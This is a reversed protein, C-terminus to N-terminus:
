NLFMDASDEQEQYEEIMRDEQRHLKRVNDSVLVLSKDAKEYNAKANDLQKGLKRFEERFSDVNQSVKTLGDLIMQAEENIKVKMEYNKILLILPFITTPSIPTISLSQLTKNLELDNVVENYMSDSPLFMLLVDVFGPKLYKKNIDSAMNKVQRLFAKHATSKQELPADLYTQYATMPAKSDIGIRKVEDNFGDEDGLTLVFDLKDNSGPVTVQKMWHRINLHEKLITELYDESFQGFSKSSTRGFINNLKDISKTSEIMTQATSQMMGLNEKVHAFSQLNKELNENMRKDIEGQIETLKQNNQEALTHFNQKNHKLIDDIADRLNKSVADKLENLSKFNKLQIDSFLQETIQKNNAFNSKNQHMTQTQLMQIKNLEEALSKEMIGKFDSFRSAIEEKNQGLTEVQKRGQENIHNFLTSGFEQQYNGMARAVILEIQPAFQNMDVGGTENSKKQYLQWALVLTLVTLVLNLGILLVLDM